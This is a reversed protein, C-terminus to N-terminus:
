KKNEDEDGEELGRFLVRARSCSTSVTCCINGCIDRRLIM